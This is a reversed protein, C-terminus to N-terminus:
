SVFFAGRKGGDLFVNSGVVLYIDNFNRGENALSQFLSRFRLSQNLDLSGIFQGFFGFGLHLLDLFWFGLLGLGLFGLTGFFGLLRGGLLWLTRLLSSSFGFFCLGGLLSSSFRFWCLLIKILHHQVLLRGM